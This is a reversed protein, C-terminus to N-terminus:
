ITLIEPHGDTVAVTVEEHATEAGDSMYATWSSEDGTNNSFMRMGSGNTIVPEITFVMGPEMIDTNIDNEFHFIKPYEHLERGIGHGCMPLAVNFHHLYATRQVAKGIDSFRGGARCARVGASLAARCAHSLAQRLEDVLSFEPTNKILFTSCNDGHWGDKCVAVDISISDGDKLEYDRAIGHVAEENVSYCAHSPFPPLDNWEPQYGKCSSEVGYEDMLYKAYNDLDILNTGVDAKMALENLIKAAVRSAKRVGAVKQGM